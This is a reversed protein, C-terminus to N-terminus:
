SLIKIEFIVKCIYAERPLTMSSKLGSLGVDLKNHAFSALFDHSILYNKHIFFLDMNSECKSLLVYRTQSSVLSPKTV